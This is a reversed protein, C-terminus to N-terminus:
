GRTERRGEPPLEFVCLGEHLPSSGGAEGSVPRRKCLRHVPELPALQM